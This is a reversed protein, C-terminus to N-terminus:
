GVEGYPGVVGAARSIKHQKRSKDWKVTHALKWARGYFKYPTKPAELVRNYPGVVEAARLLNANIKQTKPNSFKHEPESMNLEM